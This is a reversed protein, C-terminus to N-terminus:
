KSNPMQKKLDKIKQLRREYKLPVSSATDTAAGGSRDNMSDQDEDSDHLAVVRPKKRRRQTLSPLFSPLYTPSRQIKCHYLM